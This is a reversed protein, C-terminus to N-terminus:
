QRVRARGGSGVGQTHTVREALDASGDEEGTLVSQWKQAAELECTAIDELDIGGEGPHPPQPQAAAM